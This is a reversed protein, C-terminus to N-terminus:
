NEVRAIREDCEMCFYFKSIRSDKLTDFMGTNYRSGDAFLRNDQIWGSMYSKIYYGFNDGCNPCEKIEEIPKDYRAM